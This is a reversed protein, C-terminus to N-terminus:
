FGRFCVLVFKVDVYFTQVCSAVVKLLNLVNYLLRFCVLRGEVM